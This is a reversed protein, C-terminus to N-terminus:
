EVDMREVILEMTEILTDAHLADFPAVHWYTPWAKQFKWTMVSASRDETMLTVSVNRKATVDGNRVQNWWEYWDLTGIFGRRLVLPTYRTLAQLQRPNTAKDNGNRYEIVDIRAEPLMAQIIGSNTTNSDGTGLDLLFNMGPYPLDRPLAMTIEARHANPPLTQRAIL